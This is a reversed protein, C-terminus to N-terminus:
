PKPRNATILTQYQDDLARASQYLASLDAIQGRVTRKTQIDELVSHHAEYLTVVSNQVGTTLGDLTVIRAIIDAVDKNLQYIYYARGPTRVTLQSLLKTHYAALNDKLATGRNARFRAIGKQTDTTITRLLVDGQAMFARMAKAQRNNIYAKGVASLVEAALAGFGVPVASTENQRNCAKALNDVNTGLVGANKTFSTSITTSSLAELAQAYARITQIGIDIRQAEKLVGNRAEYNQWMGENILEPKVPTALRIQEVAYNLDAYSTAIQSPYQSYTQTLKAYDAVSKRQTDTLSACGTTGALLSSVVLCQLLFPSSPMRSHPQDLVFTKCRRWRRLPLNGM